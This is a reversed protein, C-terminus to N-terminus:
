VMEVRVVRGGNLYFLNEEMFNNEEIYCLMSYLFPTLVTQIIVIVMIIEVYADQYLNKM